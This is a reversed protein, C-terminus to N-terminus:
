VNLVPATGWMHTALNVLCTAHVNFTVRFFLGVDSIVLRRIGAVSSWRM